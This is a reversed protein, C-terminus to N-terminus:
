MLACGYSFLEYVFTCVISGGVLLVLDFVVTGVSFILALVGFPILKKIKPHSSQKLILFGGLASFVLASELIEHTISVKGDIGLIYHSVSDMYGAFLQFGAAIIIIKIGKLTRKDHYKTILFKSGLIASGCIMAAGSYVAIHQMRWFEDTQQLIHSTGDWALSLIELLTGFIALIAVLGLLTDQTLNEKPKSFLKM